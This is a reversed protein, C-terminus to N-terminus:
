IIVNLVLVLLIAIIPATNPNSAVVRCIDEKGSNVLELLRETSTSENFAEQLLINEMSLAAFLM